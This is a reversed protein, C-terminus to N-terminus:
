EDVKFVINKELTELEDINEEPGLYGTVFIKNLDDDYRIKLVKIVNVGTIPLNGKKREEFVLGEKEDHKFRDYKIRKILTFVERPMEKKAWELLNKNYKSLIERGFFTWYILLTKRGSRFIMLPKGLILKREQLKYEKPVNFEIGFLRYKWFSEETHCVIGPILWEAVKNWVEGPEMFYNVLFAKKEKDCLWSFTAMNTEGKWKILYAKHGYVDIDEHGYIEPNIKKKAKRFYEDIFKNVIVVPQMKSEVQKGLSAYKEWKVELKVSTRSDIRFYGDNLGGGEANISWGKPHQLMVELWYEKEFNEIM